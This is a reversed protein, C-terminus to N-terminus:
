QLGLGYGILLGAYGLAFLCIVGIADGVWHAEFRAMARLLRAMMRFDGKSTLRQFSLALHPSHDEGGPLRTRVDVACDLRHLPVSHEQVIEVAVNPFGFGM